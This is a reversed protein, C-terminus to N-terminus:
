AEPERVMEWEPLDVVPLTFEKLVRFGFHEYMKLNEESGAGVYLQLGDRGSKETVADILKGGFGKGQLETSVGFVLLYRFTHGAMYERRYDIVPKYASGMKKTVNLGIRMAAVIAGSRIMHWAKMDAYKGPVWAIIGELDESSAYVEGYTLGFRVSVEFIALFRKEIDSEGECIKNWIPDRQFADALVKGARVIDRKQVKYLM